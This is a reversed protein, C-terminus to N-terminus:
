PQNKNKKKMECKVEYNVIVFGIITLMVGLGLLEWLNSKGFYDDLLAWASRFILVSAVLIIIEGVILTILKM